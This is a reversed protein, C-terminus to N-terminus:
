FAYRCISSCNKRNNFEKRVYYCAATGFAKDQYYISGKAGQGEAIKILDQEVEKGFDPGIVYAIEEVKQGCVKTIDEVLRQVIPKGAVAILPKPVTLTHPRMRKGKGAMPIIIRM